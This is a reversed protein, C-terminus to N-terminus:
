GTTPEDDRPDLAYITIAIEAGIALIAELTEAQLRHTEHLPRRGSQLGIDFVRKTARDWEARAEPPLTAILRTFEQILPEATHPDSASNLEFCARGAPRELSHAFPALARVLADLSEGSEIELDVNLLFKARSRNSPKREHEM